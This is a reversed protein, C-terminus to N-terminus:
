GIANLLKQGIFKYNYIGSIFAMQNINKEKNDIKAIKKMCESMHDVNINFWKENSTYLNPISDNVGSITDLTSEVPISELDKFATHDGHISKNGFGLSDIHPLAASEGHSATVFCNCSQHISNIQHDSLFSSILIVKPYRQPNKFRGLTKKINDSMDKFIKSTQSPNSGPINTKVIFSVDDNEDFATYYAILAAPINKRHTFESITYFKYTTKLSDFDLKDWRKHYKGVEMAYPVICTKDKLNSKMVDRQWKCPVIIRDMLALQDKWIDPVKNTEYAFSGINKIGGKYSFESPLNFHICKDINNLDKAVFENIKPDIPDFDGTMRIHRAVLDVGVSDLALMWSQAANGYGTRDIPTLILIKM